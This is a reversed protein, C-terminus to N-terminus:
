RAPRMSFELRVVEGAPCEVVRGRAEVPAYGRPSYNHAIGLLHSGPELLARLTGDEGTVPRGAHVIRTEVEWSRSYVQERTGVDGEQRQRWLDVGPLPEGTEADVVTVEVIAAPLLDQVIPGAPSAPGIEVQRETVLYPTGYRPLLEVRYTGPPISLTVLGQDDTTEMTNVSGRAAGVGVKPAPEGTDGYRVLLPVEIPRELSIEASGELVTGSVLETSTGETVIQIWRNPFGEARIDVDFVFGPPLDSFVFRGDADTTRLKTSAPVLDNGNLAPFDWAGVVNNIIGTSQASWLALRAGAIPNGGDDVVRGEFPSGPPFRLDLVVEDGAEYRWPPDLRDPEYTISSPKPDPFFSKRPRWTLGYGEAIGFVQFAGSDRGGVESPAAREIPLPVDRFEYRGSADTTTEAVKRWAARLSALYVEAGAIPNGELDLARGSVTIPHTEPGPSGGDDPDAAPPEEPSAAGPTAVKAKAEAGAEQGAAIPGIRLASLGLVIAAASLGLGVAARGGLPRHGRSDDLLAMIRHELTSGRAMPLATSFWAGRLSRALDVLQRAYDTPREGALIVLDDSAQECEARLRHLAYWAMPHFWFLAAALRGVLLFGVDWRSVHALEHLLVLRRSREPWGRASEPLLIVPRFVGWTIAVPSDPGVRLAVSRRIGLRGSAESLLGMWDDGAEESSRRRRRSDGIMGGASVGLVVMAGALWLAGIGEAHLRWHGPAAGLRRAIPGASGGPSGLAIRGMDMDPSGEVIPRGPDAAADTPPLPAIRATPGPPLPIRWGPMAWSAPPIAVLGCLALAWLRHRAAASSRRLLASGATATALLATVKLTADLLALAPGGATFADLLRGAM